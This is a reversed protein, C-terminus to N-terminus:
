PAEAERFLILENADSPDSPAGTIVNRPLESPSGTTTARSGTNVSTQTGTTASSSSAAPAIEATVIIVEDGPRLDTLVITQGGSGMTMRTSPTVHVTSGDTMRVLRGQQDVSAITAARQRKGKAVSSLGAPLANQVVVRDGPRVARPDILQQTKAAVLQSQDTLKVTRGDQFVLVGNASDFKAVVGSTTVPPHGPLPAVAPSAATAQPPTQAESVRPERAARSCGAVLVVAALFGAVARTQQQM